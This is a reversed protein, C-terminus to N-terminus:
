DIIISINDMQSGSISISISIVEIQLIKKKKTPTLYLAICHDIYM